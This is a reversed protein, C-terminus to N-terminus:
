DPSPEELVLQTLDIASTVRAFVEQVEGVGPVVSYTLKSQGAQRLYHGILPYTQEMYVNLRHQVIEPQDDKRQIM